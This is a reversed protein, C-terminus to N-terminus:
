VLQTFGVIYNLSLPNLSTYTIYNWIKFVWLTEESKIKGNYKGVLSHPKPTSFLLSHYSLYLVLQKHLHMHTHVHTDRHTYHM